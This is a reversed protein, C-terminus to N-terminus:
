QKERVVIAGGQREYTLDAQRCVEAVADEASVEHLRLTVKKDSEARLLIPIGSRLSIRRLADAVPENELFITVLRPSIAALAPYRHAEELLALEEELLDPRAAGVNSRPPVPAARAEAASRATASPAPAAPAPPAEAVVGAVSPVPAAPANGAPGPAQAEALPQGPTPVVEVSREPPLAAPPSPAEAVVGAVSPVPAAPANVAPGPAEPETLHKGSPRVVEVGREPPLAAPPPPAEAVQTGSPLGRSLRHPEQEALTIPAERKARSPAAEPVARPPLKPQPMAVKEEKRGPEALFAEPPRAREQRAARRDAVQAPRYLPMLLVAV